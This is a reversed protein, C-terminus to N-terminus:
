HPLILKHIVNLNGLDENKGPSLRVRETVEENLNAQPHPCWSPRLLKWVSGLNTSLIDDKGGLRLEVKRESRPVSVVEPVKELLLGLSPKKRETPDIQIIKGTWFELLETIEFNMFAAGAEADLFLNYSIGMVGSVYQYEGRKTPRSYGEELAMSRYVDHSEDLKAHNELSQRSGDEKQIGTSKFVNLIVSSVRKELAQGGAASQYWAQITADPIM